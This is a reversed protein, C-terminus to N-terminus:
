YRHCEAQKKILQLVHEAESQLEELVSAFKDGAVKLNYNIQIRIITISGNDIIMIDKTGVIPGKTWQIHIGEKPFLTIKQQCKSGNSLHIKRTVTNRDRSINKISIISKWYNPDNDVKSIINWINEFPANVQLMIDVEVM